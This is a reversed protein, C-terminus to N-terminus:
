RPFFALRIYAGEVKVNVTSEITGFPNEAQCTYAGADRTTVASVQLSNDALIKARNRPILSGRRKWIVLPTPAGSVRCRLTFSVGATTTM